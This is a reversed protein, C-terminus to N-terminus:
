AASFRSGVARATKRVLARYKTRVDLYSWFLYLNGAASGCLLIWAALVTMAHSGNAIPATAPGTTTTPLVGPNRSTLDWGQGAAGGTVGSAAQGATPFATTGMSPPAPLSLPQTAAVGDLQRDGPQSLMQKDISPGRKTDGPKESALPPTTPFAAGAPTRGDAAKSGRADASWDTPLSNTPASLRPQPSEAYRGGTTLPPAVLGDGAPSKAAPGASTVSPATQRNDWRGVDRPDITQDIRQTSGGPTNPAAAAPWGGSTPAGASPPASSAGSPASAAFPAPTTGGAAGQDNNWTTTPGGAGAAQPSAAMPAGNSWAPASPLSGATVPAESGGWTTGATLPQTIDSALKKTKESLDSAANRVSDDVQDLGNRLPQTVRDLGDGMKGFPGGQQQVAPAVAGNWTTAAPDTAPAAQGAAVRLPNGPPSQVAAPWGSTPMTTPATSPASDGGNWSAADDAAAPAAGSPQAPAYTPAPYQNYQTLIIGDPLPVDTPSSADTTPKLDTVLRQRPLDGRGVVIRIRGIPGVGEPVDSVIPISRGEELTALLEPEVQVLYEYRNSGDSMPQWGYGVGVGAALLVLAAASM